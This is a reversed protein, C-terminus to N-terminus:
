LLSTCDKKGGKTSPVVTVVPNLDTPLSSDESQEISDSSLSYQDDSESTSESQDVQGSSETTSSETAPENEEASDASTETQETCPTRDSSDSKSESQNVQESNETDPTGPEPAPTAPALTDTAPAVTPTGTAPAASPTETTPAETVPAKTAPKVTSPISTSGSSTDDNTSGATSAFSSGTGGSVVDKIYDLVYSVRTYVGAKVGCKGGWSVIGVLVDNAILPGGSDGNCTDKGNGDGACLMGETIRDSYEKNCEANSIIQVNVEEMVHSESGNETLGWGRATAVTGVKNDSGDAACLDITDTTVEKELKLLGVDYLHATKNYMPHRYGKIVKVQQGDESGSGFSSAISAYITAEDTKVCHAATIVYQSAILTGGCYTSGDADDERLSVIFPFKSADAESGGYIREEDNTTLGTSQKAAADDHTESFTYGQTLTTILASTFVSARVITAFKM